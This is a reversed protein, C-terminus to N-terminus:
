GAAHARCATTSSLMHKPPSIAPSGTSIEATASAANSTAGDALADLARQVSSRNCRLERALRDQSPWAIGSKSNFYRLALLAATSTPLGRMHPDCAVVQLWKLKHM